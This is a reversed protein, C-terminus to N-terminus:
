LSKLQLIDRGLRIRANGISKNLLIVVGIKQKPLYAMYGSMGYGGCTKDIFIEKEDLIDDNIIKQSNFILNNNSDKKEFYTDGMDSDLQSILHAQWGLQECSKKDTLCYYNKHVIALAKALIKDKINPNFQAQLFKAMDTITSKLSSAAFWVDITNEYPRLQNSNHGTAVYQELKKPLNLCTSTLKLPQSIKNYLINEYSANYLNQLVYANLGISVNSYSYTSGPNNKPIYANLDKIAERYNQPVPTFDFPMSGTHALLMKVTVAKLYNNQIDPLYQEISKDIDIKNEAQAIAVLTDTYTKSFSAVRYVTRDSTKIHKLENAYGYNYTQIKNNNITAISLGAVGNQHMFRKAMLDIQNDQNSFAITPLLILLLLLFHHNKAKM